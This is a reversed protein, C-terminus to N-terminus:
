SSAGKSKRPALQTEPEKKVPEEKESLILEIHCPSSMYPNIRGHARYTRRRQKQAQNVQIHSIILSDVDLGKVEANSEANKLLDLIFKASKVPWRGQGNSHRNKAQATRGVGGCFRRFPIAQKHAIVDELYRKAKTLPLKRIAFATERTNKLRLCKMLFGFINENCLCSAGKSKRPALQTEPEKKVPEEKESLILEIHCPSSMYPNIRGHARYTRRRQKQAQNVQIHSIILSDVDLGKVEANSEANKLLDLIFKASKVPWRGQGNSHRNKAQATRGVGGCFRRFPIAQKHAIVDELYRKAKTLPLKRIAFATERTNKFHVRLDSGRAKCSKTPNDPERSYKVM